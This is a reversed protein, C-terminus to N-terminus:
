HGGGVLAAMGNPYNGGIEESGHHDHEDEAIQARLYDVQQQATIPKTAGNRLPPNEWIRRKLFREAYPIYRVDEWQSSACAVALGHMIAEVTETDPKLNRWEQYATAKSGRGKPYQTWFQDFDPPYTTQKKAPKDPLLSEDTLNPETSNPETSYQLKVRADNTGQVHTARETDPMSQQAARAERMREANRERRDILKGAYSEWDHIRLCDDVQELLEAACLCSVFTSVDGQWWAARAITRSSCDLVGDPANDLAWLWLYALHGVVHPEPMDLLEALYVVKRHDRVSQHLELWAM